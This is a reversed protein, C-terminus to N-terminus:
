FTNQKSNEMIIFDKSFIYSLLNISLFSFSFIRM